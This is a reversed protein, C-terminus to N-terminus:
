IQQQLYYYWDFFFLNIYAYTIIGLLTFIPLILKNKYVLNRSRFYYSLFIGFSLLMGSEILIILWEPDDYLVIDLLHLNLAYLILMIGTCQFLLAGFSKNKFFLLSSLILLNGNILNSFYTAIAPRYSSPDPMLYCRIFGGIAQYTLLIGIILLIAAIIKETLTSPTKM